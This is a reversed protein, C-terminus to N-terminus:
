NRENIKGGNVLIQEKIKNNFLEEDVDGFDKIGVPYKLRVVNFNLTKLYNFGKRGCEDNDLSCIINRVGAKTFKNIQEKTIKWGLIAVANQVGLQTAKLMDIFGEVLVVTRANKYNGCLTNRRTFGKNYLYKRQTEIEKDTTRCVYGRFANNDYMPFIIPYYKNCNIKAGCCNLFEPRFGRDVIYEKTEEDEESINLWDTDPLNYYYIKSQETSIPKRETESFSSDLATIRRGSYHTNYNKLIRTLEIMQELKNMQPNFLAVLDLTSGHVNCGFCYFFKDDLDIKLSANVDNHFPCVTKYSEADYFLGYYKLVAEFDNLQSRRKKM